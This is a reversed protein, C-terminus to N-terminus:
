ESEPAFFEAEDIYIQAAISQKEEQTLTSGAAFNLSSDGGRNANFYGVVADNKLIRGNIRDIPNDGQRDATYNIVTEDSIRSRATTTQLTAVIQM